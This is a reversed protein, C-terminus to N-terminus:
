LQPVKEKKIEALKEMKQADKILQRQKAEYAMVDVELENIFKGQTKIQYEDCLRLTKDANEFMGKLAAINSSRWTRIHKAKAQERILTEETATEKTMSTNDPITEEETNATELLKAIDDEGLVSNEVQKKVFEYIEERTNLFDIIHEKKSGIYQNNYHYGSDLKVFIGKNLAKEVMVKVEVALGATQYKTLFDDITSLQNEGKLVDDHLVGLKFDALYIFIDSRHRSQGLYGYYYACDMLERFSMSLVKNVVKYQKIIRTSAYQNRVSLDDLEFLAVGKLNPNPVGHLPKVQHHTCLAQAAKFKRYDMEGLEQNTALNKKPGNEYQDDWSIVLGTTLNDFRVHLAKETPTLEEKRKIRYDSTIVTQSGNVSNITGYFWIKKGKARASLVVTKIM